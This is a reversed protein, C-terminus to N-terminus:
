QGYIFGICGDPFSISTSNAADAGTSLWLVWLIGVAWAVTNTCYISNLYIKHLVSNKSLWILEVLVMSTFAGTRM